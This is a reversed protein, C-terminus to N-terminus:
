GRPRNIGSSDASINQALQALPAFEAIAKKAAPSHPPKSSITDFQVNERNTLSQLQSRIRRDHLTDQLIELTKQFSQHKESYSQLLSADNLVNYQRAAREMTTLQELLIRINQTAKVAQYVTSQSKDALREVHYAGYIMAFILPLAVFGFGILILTLFSKPGYFYVTKSKTRFTQAM